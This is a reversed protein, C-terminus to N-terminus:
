ILQTSTNRTASENGTFLSLCKLPYSLLRTIDSVAHNRNFSKLIIAFRSIFFDLRKIIVIRLTIPHRLSGRKFVYGQRYFLEHLFDRGVLLSQSVVVFRIGCVKGLVLLAVSVVDKNLNPAVRRFALLSRRQILRIQNTSRRKLAARGEFIQRFFIGIIDTGARFTAFCTHETAVHHRGFKLFGDKRHIDAVNAFRYSCIEAVVDNTKFVNIRATQLGEFLRALVNLILIAALLGLSYEKLLGLM